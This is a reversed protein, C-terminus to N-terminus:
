EYINPFNVSVIYPVDRSSLLINHIVSRLKNFLRKQILNSFFLFIFFFYLHLKASLCEYSVVKRIAIRSYLFPWARIVNRPAFMHHHHQIDFVLLQKWHFLHCNLNAVDRLDRSRPCWRASLTQIGWRTGKQSPRYVLFISLIM